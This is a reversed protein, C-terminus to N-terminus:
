RYYLNNPHSFCSFILKKQKGRLEIDIRYAILLGRDGILRRGMGLRFATDASRARGSGGTDEGRVVTRKRGSDHGTIAPRTM